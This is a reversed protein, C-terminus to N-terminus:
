AGATPTAPTGEGNIAALNDGSQCCLNGMLRFIGSDSTTLVRTSYRHRPSVNRATVPRGNCKQLPYLVPGTGIQIMVPADVTTATPIAQALVICVKEGDDFSGPRLTIVLNGGTFAIDQSIRLHKCIKESTRCAM